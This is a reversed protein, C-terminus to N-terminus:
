PDANLFYIAGLTSGYICVLNDATFPPRGPLSTLAASASVASLSAGQGVLYDGYTASFVYLNGSNDYMACGNETAAAVGAPVSIAIAAAAAAVGAVITAVSHRTAAAM